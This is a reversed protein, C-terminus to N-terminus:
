SVLTLFRDARGYGRGFYQMDIHKPAVGSTNFRINLELSWKDLLILTRSELSLRSAAASVCM